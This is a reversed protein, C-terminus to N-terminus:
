AFSVTGLAVEVNIQRKSAIKSDFAAATQGSIRDNEGEVVVHGTRVTGDGTTSGNAANANIRIVRVVQDHGVVASDTIALGHGHRRVVHM